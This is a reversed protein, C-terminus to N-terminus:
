KTEKPEENELQSYMLKANKIFAEQPVNYQHMLGVISYTADTLLNVLGDRSRTDYGSTKFDAKLENGDQNLKFNIERVTSLVGKELKTKHKM